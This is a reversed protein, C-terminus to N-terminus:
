GEESAIKHSATHTVPAPLGAAERLNNFEKLVRASYHMSTDSAAGGYLQLAEETSGAHNMFARLIMTGVRINQAPDFMAAPGKNPGIKDAHYKPIIQMLGQAGQGSELFPNFGSEVTIVALIMLPDIRNAQGERQAAKILASVVVPAVHFRKSIASAVREFDPSLAVGQTQSPVPVSFATRIIEANGEATQQQAPVEKAAVVPAPTAPVPVAVPAYGFMTRPNLGSTGFQAYQYVALGIAMIGAMVFGGHAFNVLFTLVHRGFRSLRVASTMSKEM